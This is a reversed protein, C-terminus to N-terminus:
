LVLVTASYDYRWANTRHLRTWSWTRFIIDWTSGQDDTLVLPYFKDKWIDLDSYFSQTLVAGSFTSEKTKDRGQFILNQGNPASTQETIINSNRGPPNFANPNIAFTLIDPSGTSNDTLTWAAM